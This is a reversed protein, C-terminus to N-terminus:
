IPASVKKQADRQLQRRENIVTQPLPPLPIRDLAPAQADRRKGDRVDKLKSRKSSSAASAASQQSAGAVVGATEERILGHLM